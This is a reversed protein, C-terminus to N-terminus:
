VHFQEIVQLRDVDEIKSFADLMLSLKASLDRWTGQKRDAPPKQCWKDFAESSEIADIWGKDFEDEEDNALKMVIITM